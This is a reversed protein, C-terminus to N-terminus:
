ANVEHQKSYISPLVGYTNLFCKSFYAPSNFGTKFAIESINDQQRNLLNLARNLRYEKIFANPSKGTISIMKRYLQSKSYGLERCFDEVNLGSNLWEEETYDMLLNLFLEDNPHLLKVREQDISAILNESEFLEKVDNSIVIQGDVVKCLRDALKVTDGFIHDQNTVPVGASLGISFKIFKQFNKYITHKLESQIEIACLVANTVSEFSTLFYDLKQKVVRGKYKSFTNVTFMNHKKIAANLEKPFGTALSIRRLGIVMIIRCAPDNIINLESNQSKEPDEIRGLFSEVVKPNVEILRHPVDGHAENHMDQLAKENPAEILCFATRRNEDCWYTMGKCGYKHEVKLDAQHMEAVHEATVGEPMEHRDMYIPM